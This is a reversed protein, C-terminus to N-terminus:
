VLLVRSEAPDVLAGALRDSLRDGDAPARGADREALAVDPDRAEVVLREDLDVRLGTLDDAGRARQEPVRVVHHDAVAAGPDGLEVPRELPDAGRAELALALRATLPVPLAGRQEAVVKPEDVVRLLVQDLDLDARAVEGAALDHAEPSSRVRDRGAEARQPHVVEDVARHAPDVRGAPRDGLRDVADPAREPRIGDRDPEPAHPDGVL